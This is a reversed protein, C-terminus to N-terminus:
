FYEKKDVGEDHAKVVAVNRLLFVSWYLLSSSICILFRSINIGRLPHEPVM